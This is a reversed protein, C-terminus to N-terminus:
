KFVHAEVLSYQVLRILRSHRSQIYLKAACPAALRQADNAAIGSATSNLAKPRYFYHLLAANAGASQTRAFRRPEHFRSMFTGPSAHSADAACPRLAGMSVRPADIGRAAFLALLRSLYKKFVGASM